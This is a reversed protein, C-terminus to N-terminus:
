GGDAGVAALRVAHSAEAIRISRAAAALLAVSAQLWLWQDRTM